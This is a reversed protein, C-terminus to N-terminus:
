VSLDGFDAVRYGTLETEEELDVVRLNFVGNLRSVAEHTRELLLLLHRIPRPLIQQHTSAKEREEKEKGEKPKFRFQDYSGSTRVSRRQAM